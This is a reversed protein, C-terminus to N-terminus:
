LPRWPSDDEDDRGTAERREGRLDSALGMARARLEQPLVLQDDDAATTDTFGAQGDLQDLTM